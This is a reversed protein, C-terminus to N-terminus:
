VRAARKGKIKPALLYLRIPATSVFWRWPMAGPLSRYFRDANPYEHRLDMFSTVAEAPLQVEFRAALPQCPPYEDQCAPRGLHWDLGLRRM